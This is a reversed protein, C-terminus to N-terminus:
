GVQSEDAPDVKMEPNINVGPGFYPCFAQGPNQQEDGEM